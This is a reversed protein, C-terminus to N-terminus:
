AGQAALRNRNWKARMTAIEDASFFHRTFKHDLMENVYTEPLRITRLFEQYVASYSKSEGVNKQILKLSAVGVLDALQQAKVDDDLDARLILLDYQPTRIRQWRRIPDFPYEYADIGLSTRMEIDFWVLPRPHNLLKFFNEVLENMPLKRHANPIKTLKDLNQFYASLNRAIPDRVVTVVKAPINRRVIQHLILWSELDRRATPPENVDAWRSLGHTRLVEIGNVQRLTAEITSSAVKGMQFVIVPVSEGSVARQVERQLRRRRNFEILYGFPM